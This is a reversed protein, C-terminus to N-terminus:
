KIDGGNERWDNEEKFWEKIKDYLMWRGRFGMSIPYKREESIKSKDPNDAWLTISEINKVMNKVWKKM